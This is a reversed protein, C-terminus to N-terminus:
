FSGRRFVQKATWLIIKLDLVITNKRVYELDLNKRQEATAESRLTSQALGTVGPRVFHRESWEEETYLERQAPVDPRPGVISMEGKLVNILQPLEDLSTKRIFRGIRTIRPDNQQTYYPGVSEANTVMSRFKYLKFAECNRGVRTQAFLVPGTSNLKILLAILLFIPSILLLGVGSAIFDLTRKM